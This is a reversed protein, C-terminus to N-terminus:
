STAEQFYGRRITTRREKDNYVLTFEDSISPRLAEYYDGVIESDTSLVITQEAANPIYEEVIAMRHASDLRALPTDIIVPLQKESCIALAWLASVVMLQNEGASLTKRDIESGNASYYKPELTVPDMIVRDVLNAKSALRKYCSTIVASLRQAKKSQIRISYEEFLEQALAIYRVARENEEAVDLEGLFREMCRKYEAKKRIYEGNVAARDARAAAIRSKVEDLEDQTQKIRASVEALKDEDVEVSLYNEVEELQRLLSEKSKLHREHEAELGPVSDVLASLQVLASTSVDQVIGPEKAMTDRAASLFARIDGSSQGADYLALLQELKELAVSLARNEYSDRAEAAISPLISKFMLLPANGSSLLRGAEDEEKIQALLSAQREIYIDRQKAADGGSSVYEGRLEDLKKELKTKISEQRGMELDLSSLENMMSTIEFALSDVEESSAKGKRQLRKGLTALDKKLVDVTSVGLLTRISDKMQNDSGDLRLDAIKEGNFFFFTSLARPLINEVYAAWNESLFEDHCGNRMVMVVPHIHKSSADWRREIVLAESRGACEHSFALTVSGETSGTDTNTHSRLYQGFSSYGSDRYALSNSGYLAVQVAELFTTKGHGNMGGVLVVSNGDSFDFRNRGRYPGFNHLELSLLRM